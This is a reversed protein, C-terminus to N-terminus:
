LGKGGARKMSGNFLEVMEGFTEPYVDRCTTFQLIADLCKAPASLKMRKRLSQCRENYELAQKHIELLAARVRKQEKTLVKAM